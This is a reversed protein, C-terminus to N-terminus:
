GVMVNLWIGSLYKKFSEQVELPKINQITSIYNDLYNQPLGFYLCSKFHNLFHEPTTFSKIYNGSLYNKVKKFEEDEVPKNKIKEIEKYIEEIVKKRKEKIFDGKVM